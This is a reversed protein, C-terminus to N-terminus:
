YLAEISREAISHINPQSLLGFNLGKLASTASTRYTTGKRLYLCFIFFDCFCSLTTERNKM